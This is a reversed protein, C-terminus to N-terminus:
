CVHRCLNQVLKVTNNQSGGLIIMPLILCTVGKFFFFFTHVLAGCQNPMSYFHGTSKPDDCLDCKYNQFSSFVATLFSSLFFSPISCVPLCLNVPLLEHVFM